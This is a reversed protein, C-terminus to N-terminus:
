YESALMFVNDTLFFRYEGEPCDTFDIKKSWLTTENGDTAVIKARSGTVIMTVSVFEHRKHLTAVETLIIDLFWHAGGGANDRFYQVGDTWRIHRAFLPHVYYNDTGTFQALDSQFSM